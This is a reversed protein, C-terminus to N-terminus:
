QQWIETLKNAARVNDSQGATQHTIQTSADVQLARTDTVVAKDATFQHGKWDTYTEM